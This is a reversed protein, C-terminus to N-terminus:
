KRGRAILHVGLAILLVPWVYKMSFWVFLNQLLFIAGLIVIIMGFVVTRNKRKKQKIEKKANAVAVEVAAEAKTNKQIKHAPNKPIIIWGIIYLVIGLGDAFIVSLIAILRVWVSDINFYDAIGGCVGAIVKDNNSRYLKKVDDNNDNNKKNEKKNNTQKTKQKAM